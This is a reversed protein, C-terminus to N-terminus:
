PWNKNTPSNGCPRMWTRHMCTKSTSAPDAAGGSPKQLQIAQQVSQWQTNTFVPEPRKTRNIGAAGPMLMGGKDFGFFNM